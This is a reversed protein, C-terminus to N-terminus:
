LSLYKEAVPLIAELGARDHLPSLFLRRIAANTVKGHIYDEYLTRSGACLQGLEGSPSLLHAGFDVLLEEVQRAPPCPPQLKKCAYSLFRAAERAAHMMHFDRVLFVNEAAVYACGCEELREQAEDPIEFESNGDVSIVEPLTDALFKPQTGNSPSNLVFGLSRALSLILNHVAPTFDPAEDEIANWRELCLRYSEYKELPTSNFVCLTNENVSVASAQEGVARWYLADINQLVIVAREEPLAQELLKPLHGPAMHSEGFLVLLLADPHEKRMQGIKAAAHRDRSRIRRLDHRPECDLAYIGEAHDRAATLLEYFPGWDYGWERDFRIRRRLEEQSIERRWWADVIKQDRSLLAEVGVVVRRNLAQAEIVGTAFKQSAPLSHYDGILLLSSAGIRADFEQDTIVHSYDRFSDTFERLYKSHTASDNARVERRVAALAHMQAATRRAHQQKGAM